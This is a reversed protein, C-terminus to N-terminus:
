KAQLEPKMMIVTIKMISKCYGNYEKVEEDTIDKCCNSCKLSNQLRTDIM